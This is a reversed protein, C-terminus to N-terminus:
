HSGATQSKFGAINACGFHHFIALYRRLCWVNASTWRRCDLQQCVYYSMGYFILNKSTMSIVFVGNSLSRIADLAYASSSILGVFIGFLMLGLVVSTVAPNWYQQVGYGYLALGSATFVLSIVMPFLRFEPEYIGKNMKASFKGHSRFHHVYLSLRRHRRGNTGSIVSAHLM